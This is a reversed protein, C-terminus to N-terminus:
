RATEGKPLTPVPGTTPPTAPKEVDGKAELRAGLGGVLLAFLVLLGQLVGGLSDDLQMVLNLRQSGMLIAAFFFAILPVWVIRLSSLMVVLLALFGIGGTILPRLSQYTGLARMAGAAGGLAGCAAMALVTQRAVRVGLIHASSRSHGMAKLRLGWRTGRLAVWVAAFGLIAVALAVWSLRLGAITPLVAHRGFIPTSHVSGGEPPQWPGSVLWTTLNVALFNLATGSFIENVNAANRLWAAGMAWLAGGVMAALIELPVQLVAPLRVHLAIATAWIAGMAMQGEIGINWLGATFTLLLGSAALLLPVWFAMVDAVKSPSSFAGELIQGYAEVPPAGVAVLLVMGCLLALIVPALWLIVHRWRGGTV